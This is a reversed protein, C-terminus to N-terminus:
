KRRVSVDLAVGGEAENLMGYCLLTGRPSFPLCFQPVICSVRFLNEM